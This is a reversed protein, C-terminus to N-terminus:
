YARPLQLGFQGVINRQTHTTGAAIAMGICCYYLHEFAGRIKTWKSGKHFMDIQSYAGMIDLGTRTLKEMFTDSNAKDRSPEHAIMMGQDIKWAAELALLRASELDIRLDALKQRIEPKKILDTEKTYQVLEDLLRRNSASNGIAGGREFQLATMLHNWGNNEQGVLNEAPVRVDKFFVENFIHGGTFNKLPRVSLGESKMDVIMLSLGQHKKPLNPNTRCALWMWRARHACSTWVKQGNIIYEDGVKEARTQLSALDTGSDPESYGTCWVGDAEGAAITPIYKEQQEKTGILMLTPGVWATGSIGMSIGPIGWYGAEESFVVREWQSAGLGGFEKPWSLTLWKKEALKKATSMAFAWAEDDQEAEFMYGIYGSPMNEKVFERIESRFKEEKKGYKFDM